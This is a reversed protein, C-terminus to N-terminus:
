GEVLKDQLYGLTEGSLGVTKLYSNIGGYRADLGHLTALMSEPACGVNREFIEMDDGAQLAQKRWEKIKLELYKQSLAYDQAIVEYPVKALGLLLAAILGTRDKGAACHFLVCGSGADAIANFIDRIQSQCTDLLLLYAEELLTTERMRNFIDESDRFPINLYTLEESHEFVNPERATEAKERLDVITTVGYQLLYQQDPEPLEGLNDARLMVKWRTISGDLTEYGGLDRINSSGALALHRQGSM